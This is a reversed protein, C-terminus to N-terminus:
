RVTGSHYGGARPKAAEPTSNSSFESYVRRRKNKRRPTKDAEVGEGKNERKRRRGLNNVLLVTKLM